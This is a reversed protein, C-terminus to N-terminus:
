LGCTALEKGALWIKTHRPQVRGIMLDGLGPVYTGSSVEKEETESDHGGAAWAVSFSTLVIVAVLARIARTYRAMFDECRRSTLAVRLDIINRLLLLAKRLLTKKESSLTLL